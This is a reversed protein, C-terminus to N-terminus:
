FRVWVSSPAKYPVLITRNPEPESFKLITHNPDTAVSSSAKPLTPGLEVPNGKPKEEGKTMAIGPFQGKREFNQIM